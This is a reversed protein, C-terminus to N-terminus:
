NCFRPKNFVVRLLHHSNFLYINIFRVGAVLFLVEHFRTIFILTLIKVVFKDAGTLRKVFSIQLLILINAFTALEDVELVNNLDGFLHIAMEFDVSLDLLHDPFEIIFGVFDLGLPKCFTDHEFSHNLEVFCELQHHIM